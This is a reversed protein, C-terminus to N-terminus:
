NGIPRFFGWNFSSPRVLDPINLMLARNVRYITSPHSHSGCTCTCNFGLVICDTCGLDRPNTLCKSCSEGHQPHVEEVCGAAVMPPFRYPHTTPDM